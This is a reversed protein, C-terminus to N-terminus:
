VVEKKGALYNTTVAGTDPNTERIYTESGLIHVSELGYFPNVNNPNIQFDIGRFKYGKTILSVDSKSVTVILNGSADYFSMAVYAKTTNADVNLEVVLKTWAELGPYTAENATGITNTTNTDVLLMYNSNKYRDKHLTIKTAYTGSTLIAYQIIALPRNGGQMHYLEVDAPKTFTLKFGELGSLLTPATDPDLNSFNCSVTYMNTGQQMLQDKYLLQDPISGITYDWSTNLRNNYALSEFDIVNVPSDAAVTQLANGLKTPSLPLETSADSVLYNGSSGTISVLNNATVAETATASITTGSPGSEIKVANTKGYM